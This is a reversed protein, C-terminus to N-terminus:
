CCRLELLETKLHNIQAQSEVREARLKTARTDLLAKHYSVELLRTGTTGIRYRHVEIKNEIRTIDNERSMKATKNQRLKSFM